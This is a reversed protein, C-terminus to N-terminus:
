GHSPAKLDAREVAAAVHEIAADQTMGRTRAENWANLRLESEFAESRAFLRANEEAMALITPDSQRRAECFGSVFAHKRLADIGRGADLAGSLYAIWAATAAEDLARLREVNLKDDMM